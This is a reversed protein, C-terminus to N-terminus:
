NSLFRDIDKITSVSNKALKVIDKTITSGKKNIKINFDISSSFHLVVFLLIMSFTFKKFGNNKKKM